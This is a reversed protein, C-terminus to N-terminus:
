IIKQGGVKKKEKIAVIEARYDNSLNVFSKRTLYYIVLFNLAICVSLVFISRMNPSVYYGKLTFGFIIAHINFVLAISTLIAVIIRPIKRLNIFLFLMVIIIWSFTTGINNVFGIPIDFLDGLIKLPINIYFIKQYFVWIAILIIWFPRKTTPRPAYFADAKMIM